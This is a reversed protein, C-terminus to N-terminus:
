GISRCSNGRPPGALFGQGHTRGPVAASLPPLGGFIQKSGNTSTLRTELNDRPVAVSKEPRPCLILHRKEGRILLRERSMDAILKSVMPRSSGIMEALDEHSLEPVLLTGRKDNVGFREALNYLVNELRERFSSGVFSVYSAFLTSWATNFQELLRVATVNDVKRILQKLHDRTLLGISCKTLAQAELVQRHGKSDTENVFGILDGPRALHVLTRNGDGHPLYLKVVGKLVWFLLDASSGRLFIVAGKEFTVPLLHAEIEAAVDPSFGYSEFTEILRASTESRYSDM